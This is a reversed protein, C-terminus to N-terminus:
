GSEEGQCEGIEVVEVSDHVTQTGQEGSGESCESCESIGLSKALDRVKSVQLFYQYGSGLRRNQTFGLRRLLNGIHRSSLYDHDELHNIMEHKIDALKYFDDHDALSLLTEVLIIEFMESNTSQSEAAKEIALARISQFLTTDDFFKALALIPKWLEWDRNQLSRDNQLEAYAQKVAKWNKMMFPYIMDRIQQWIPYDSIVERATIDTNSGRQMIIDICRSGLVSELGEINVLMKPSYVEFAETLFNGENTRRARYVNLGKKYGNLLINRVDAATYRNSLADSEDIFVSCRSSQTLRFLCACTTNGISVANFCMCSSLTLLKTKGSGSIGGVYVYPYANFLRYFYTGINWLTLFDYLRPDLLEIYAKFLEKIRAFLQTSRVSDAGHVFRDISESSWRQEMNFDVYKLSANRIERTVDTFDLISGSDSVEHLGYLRSSGRCHMRQGVYAHEATFDIAPHIATPKVEINTESM